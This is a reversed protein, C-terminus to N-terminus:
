SFGQQTRDHPPPAVRYSNRSRWLLRNTAVHPVTYSNDPEVSMMVEGGGGIRRASGKLRLYCPRDPDMQDQLIPSRLGGKTVDRSVEKASLSGAIIRRIKQTKNFDASLSECSEIALPSRVARGLNHGLPCNLVPGDSFMLPPGIETRSSIRVLPRAWLQFAFADSEAFVRRNTEAWQGQPTLLLPATPLVRQAAKRAAAQGAPSLREGLPKGLDELLRDAGADAKEHSARGTQCPVSPM